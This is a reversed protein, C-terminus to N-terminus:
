KKQEKNASSNEQADAAQHKLLKRESKAWDYLLQQESTSLRANPHLILYQKVPMEGSRAESGIKSLLDIRTERDYRQWQSLDLHTRGQHVDEEILWSVPAFRSYVPWNTNSSHCDACKTELVHRVEFPVDAGELIPHHGLSSSSRVDGWPHAFSLAISTALIAITAFMKGAPRM